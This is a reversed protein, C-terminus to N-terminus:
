AVTRHYRPVFADELKGTTRNMHKRIGGIDHAFDGEAAVLLGELDLPYQSHANDIDMIITLRKDNIGFRRYLGEAREAIKAILDLDDRRTM